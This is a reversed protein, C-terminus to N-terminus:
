LERVIKVVYSSPQYSRFMSFESDFDDYRTEDVLQQFRDQYAPPIMYWHGDDDAIFLWEDNM